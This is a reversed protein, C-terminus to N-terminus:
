TNVYTTFSARFFGIREDVLDGDTSTLGIVNPSSKASLSAVAFADHTASCQNFAADNGNFCGFTVGLAAYQTDINTGSPVTDFTILVAAADQSSLGLLAFGILAILLGTKM